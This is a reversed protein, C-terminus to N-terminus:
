SIMDEIVDWLHVIMLEEKNCLDIFEEARRKEFFIDPISIEVGGTDLNIVDMGYVTFESGEESVINDIRLKYIWGM